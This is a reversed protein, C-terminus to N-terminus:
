IHLNLFECIRLKLVRIGCGSVHWEAGLRGRRVGSGPRVGQPPWAGRVAQVSSGPFASVSIVVAAQGGAASTGGALGAMVPPALLGDGSAAGGARGPCAAHREVPAQGMAPLYLQPGFRGRAACAGVRPRARGRAGRVPPLVGAPFFVGPWSIKQRRHVGFLSRRGSQEGRLM